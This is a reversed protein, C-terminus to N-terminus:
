NEKVIKDSVFLGIWMVFMDMVAAITNKPIKVMFPISFMYCEIVTKIVLIGILVAIGTVVINRIKNKKEYFKGCILGIVLNCVFWGPPFWGSMILSVLTGGCAGVIAGSVAGFKMCYVALVIYGLDLGIHGIVPIKLVMSLAVYLAIGIATYTMKKVM